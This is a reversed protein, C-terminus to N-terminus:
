FLSITVLIHVVKVVMPSNSVLSFVVLPKFISHSKCNVNINFNPQVKDLELPKIHSLNLNSDNTTKCRNKITTKIGVKATQM